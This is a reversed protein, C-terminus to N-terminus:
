YTFVVAPIYETLLFYPVLRFAVPLDNGNAEDDILVQIGAKDNNSLWLNFLGAAVQSVLFVAAEFYAANGANRSIFRLSKLAGCMFVCVLVGAIVFSIIAMYQFISKLVDEDDTSPLQFMYLIYLLVLCIVILTIAGSFRKRWLRRANFNDGFELQKLDYTWRQSM